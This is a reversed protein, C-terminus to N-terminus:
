YKGKVEKQFAGVLTGLDAKQDDMRLTLSGRTFTTVIWIDLPLVGMKDQGQHKNQSVM